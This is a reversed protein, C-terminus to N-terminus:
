QGGIQTNLTGQVNNILVIYDMSIDIVGAEKSFVDLRTLKIRPEYKVIAEQVFRKCLSLNVGDIGDFFLNFQNTGYSRNMPRETIMTSLINLISSKILTIETDTIFSQAVGGSSTFSFPITMGTYEIGM